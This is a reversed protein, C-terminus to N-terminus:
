SARAHPQENPEEVSQPTRRQFVKRIHGLILLGLVILVVLPSVWVLRYGGMLYPSSASVSRVEAVLLGLEWEKLSDVVRGHTDISASIGTNAVRVMPTWGELCRWRTLELHAERGVPWRGFWGDNTVGILIDARRQGGTGLLERCVRASTGEFCIPTAVTVLRGDSAQLEFLTAERSPVGRSLDFRMGTAGIGQNLLWDQVSKWREIGPM